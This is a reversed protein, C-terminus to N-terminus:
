KEGTPDLNRTWDPDQQSGGALNHIIYEYEMRMLEEQLQNGEKNDKVEAQKKRYREMFHKQAREGFMLKIYTGQPYDMVGRAYGCKYEELMYM